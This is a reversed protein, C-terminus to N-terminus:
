RSKEPVPGIYKRAIVVNDFYVRIPNNKTYVEPLGHYYTELSFFTIRLQPVRRFRVGEKRISLQGDIWLEEIGDASAPDDKASDASNLRM